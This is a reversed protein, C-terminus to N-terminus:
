SQWTSRRKENRGHPLLHPPSSCLAAALDPTRSTTAAVKPDWCGQLCWLDQTLGSQCCAHPSCLSLLGQGMCSIPNERPVFPLHGRAALFRTTEPCESRTGKPLCNQKYQLPTSSRLGSSFPTLAGGAVPPRAAGFSMLDERLVLCADVLRIWFVVVIM